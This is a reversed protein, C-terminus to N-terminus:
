LCATVKRVPGFTQRHEPTVGFKALAQLHEPTPYGKHRELGYQPYVKHWECMRQDRAVKALISAAAISRCKADGQIIARHPTELPLAFGDALVFDPAPLLQEVARRMARLSAQHINVLDIESAEIWAVSWAVCREQIKRALEERREPLLQKSDRLGRVPSDASLIVAAAYVPGFLCGRGVEDTGAICTYGLRRAEREYYDRCQIFAAAM